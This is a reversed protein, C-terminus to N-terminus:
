DLGRDIWTEHVRRWLLGNPADSDTSFIVTSRRTNSRDALVHEEIYEAVLVEDTEMVLKHDLTRIILSETHAHGATIAAITGARDTTNADAGVFTFDDALAAEVRSLDTSNGLFYMEFVEHLEIIELQWKPTAMARAKCVPM